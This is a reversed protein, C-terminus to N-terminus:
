GCDDCYLEEGSAATPPESTPEVYVYTPSPTYTSNPEPEFLEQTAAPDVEQTAAPIAAQTAVIVPPQTPTSVAGNAAVTILIPPPTTQLEDTDCGELNDFMTGDVWLNLTESVAVEFWPVDDVDVRGVPEYTLTLDLFTSVNRNYGPGVHGWLENVDSRVSLQCDLREIRTIFECDQVVDEGSVYLLGFNDDEFEYWLSGDDNTTALAGEIENGEEIITRVSRGVGPGIHANIAGIGAIPRVICITESVTMTGDGNDVQSAVDDGTSTDVQDGSVNNLPYNLLSEPLKYVTNYYTASKYTNGDTTLPTPSAFGTTPIRRVFPIGSTSIIPAGTVKDLIAQAGAGVPPSVVAQTTHNGEIVVAQPTNPYLTVKGEIVTIWMVDQGDVTSFGMAVTSGFQIPIDNITLDTPQGLPTQIVLTNPAEQCDSDGGTSFYLSGFASNSSSTTDIAAASALPLGDIADNPFLEDRKVWATQGEYSTRLWLRDDSLANAELVLANPATAITVGTDTPSDRLLAGDTTTIFVVDVSISPNGEIANEMFVEGLMFLRVSEDATVTPLNARTQLYAVGWEDEELDIAASQITHVTALDAVNGPAIFTGLHSQDFHTASLNDYAYCSMEGDREICNESAQLMANDVLAECLRQAQGITIGLILLSTILTTRLFSRFM